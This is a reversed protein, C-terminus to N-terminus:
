VLALIVLEHGNEVLYEGIHGAMDYGEEIWKLVPFREVGHIHGALRTSFGSDTHRQGRVAASGEAGALTQRLRILRRHQMFRVLGPRQQRLKDMAVRAQQYQGAGPDTGIGTNRIVPIAIAGPLAFLRNLVLREHFIHVGPLAIPPAAQNAPRHHTIGPGVRGMMVDRVQFQEVVAAQHNGLVNVTQVLLGAGPRHRVQVSPGILHHAHSATVTARPILYM